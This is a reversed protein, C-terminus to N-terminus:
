ATKPLFIEAIMCRASGGGIKEITDIPNPLLTGYKELQTKQAHTFGNFASQSMVIYPEGQNNTVHLINACFHKETQEMSIEIIERDMELASKLTQYERKDTISDACIVAFGEGISMMVNTHYIPLGSSSTTHFLYTESYQRASAFRALQAPHCRESQAAFIRNHIHDFILVGTGELVEEKEDFQGIIQTNNVKYHNNELLETLDNIRREQRRNEAHMPYVLLDGSQTTSFWNNPFVADPTKQPTTRSELVLVTLGVSRLNSVMNQFEILAKETVHEDKDPRHQFANDGGTQENFGFDVPRVMVLTDSLQQQKAHM